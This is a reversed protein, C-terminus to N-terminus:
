LFRDFRIRDPPVRHRILLLDQVADVMPPPGALYFDVADLPRGELTPVIATHVFGTPGAWPREPRPDSLVTVTSVGTGEISALEAAAGLDDQTRLGLLFHLPRPRAEARSARAISLMPGLGSGGAICCLSRDGPRLWAHGYPGDLGIADGPAVRDFLARSGRGDPVRRVIFRWVPEGDDVNSMSYARDGPTGPLSLLAYQGPRFPMPRPLRFAFETLDATIARREVLTAEVRAPRPVGAEWAGARVRIRCDGLPRSQCALRRGRRRERESLGPAEAWLTEVEGELLEFRCSGCGGVGCEYPLAVGARLGARLLTDSGGAADFSGDGDIAIHPVRPTPHAGASM